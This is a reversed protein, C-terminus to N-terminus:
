GLLGNLVGALKGPELPKLMFLDAGARLAENEMNMGSAVVIPTHGFEASTRLQAVLDLGDMDVLHWDIMFIDPRVQRALAFAELGRGAVSVEFGDMELLMQLLNTTTRDDDVIMIKPM